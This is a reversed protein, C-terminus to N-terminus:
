RLSWLEAASRSPDIIIEDNDFAEGVFRVTMGPLNVSSGGSAVTEGFENRGVWNDKNANYTFTVKQPDVLAMDEVDVEAYAQGVHDCWFRCNAPTCCPRWRSDM